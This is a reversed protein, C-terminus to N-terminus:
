QFHLQRVIILDRVVKLNLVNEYNSETQDPLHLPLHIMLIICAVQQILKLLM